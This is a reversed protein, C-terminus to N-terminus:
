RSTIVIKSQIKSPMTFQVALMMVDSMSAMDPIKRLARPVSIVAISSYKGNIVIAKEIMCYVAHANNNRMVIHCSKRVNPPGIVSASFGHCRSALLVNNAIMIPNALGMKLIVRSIARAGYVANISALM